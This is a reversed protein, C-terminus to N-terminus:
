FHTMTFMECKCLLGWCDKSGKSLGFKGSLSLLCKICRPLGAGSRQISISKLVFLQTEPTVLSVLMYVQTGSHTHTHTHTHTLPIGWQQRSLQYNVVITEHTLIHFVAFSFFPHASLPHTYTQHKWVGKCEKVSRWMGWEAMRRRVEGGWWVNVYM